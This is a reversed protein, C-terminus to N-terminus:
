KSPLCGLKAFILVYFILAVTLLWYNGASALVMSVGMISGLLLFVLVIVLPIMGGITGTQSKSQLGYNWTGTFKSTKQSGGDPVRLKTSDIIANTM